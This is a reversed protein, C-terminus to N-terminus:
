AWRTIRTAIKGWGLRAFLTEVAARDAGRWVLGPLESAIGPVDRRL